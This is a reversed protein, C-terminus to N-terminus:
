QEPNLLSWDLTETGGEALSGIESSIQFELLILGPSPEDGLNGQQIEYVLSRAGRGAEPAGKGQIERSLM